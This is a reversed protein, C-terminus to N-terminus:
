VGELSDFDIAVRIIEAISEVIEARVDEDINNFEQKIGRRDTLNALIGRAAKHAYDTAPPPIRTEDSQWWSDPADYPYTSGLEISHKAENFSELKSM